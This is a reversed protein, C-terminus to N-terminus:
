QVNVTFSRTETSRTPDEFSRYLSFQLRTSGPNGAKFDFIEPASVGLGANPPVSGIRSATGDQGPNLPSVVAADFGKVLHWSYGQTGHGPLTISFGGGRQPTFTFDPLTNGQADTSNQAGPRLENAPGSDVSTPIPGRGSCATLLAAAATVVLLQSLTSM